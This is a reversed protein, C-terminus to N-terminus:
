TIYLHSALFNSNYRRLKEVIFDISAQTKCGLCM